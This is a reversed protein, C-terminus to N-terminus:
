APVACHAAPAPAQIRKLAIALALAYSRPRDHNIVVTVLPSHQPHVHLDLVQASGDHMEIYPSDLGDLAHCLATSNRACEGPDLEGSDLLVIETDPAKSQRLCEITRLRLRKGVAKAM